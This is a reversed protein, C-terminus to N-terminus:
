ATTDEVDKSTVTGADSPTLWEPPWKPVIEAVDEEAVLYLLKYWTKKRDRRLHVHLNQIDDKFDNLTEYQYYVTPSLRPRQSIVM